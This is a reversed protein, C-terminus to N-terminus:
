EEKMRGRERMRENERESRGEERVLVWKRIIAGTGLWPEDSSRLGKSLEEEDLSM